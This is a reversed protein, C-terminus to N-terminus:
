TTKDQAHPQPYVYNEPFRQGLDQPGTINGWQTNPPVDGSVTTGPHILASQGIHSGGLVICRSTVWAGPDIRIERKILAMDRRHAHSGTSLFADQSLVVDHGIYIHDQNHIWVGEGIWSRDGIHLKWPFKVRTRPRFIVGDGIEAGFLRLVQVRLDSSIQWANTVILLECIAWLYILIKPRDWAAHEGPADALNIVPIDFSSEAEHSEKM